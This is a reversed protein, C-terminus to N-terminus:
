RGILSPLGWDVLWDTIATEGIEETEPPLVKESRCVLRFTTGPRKGMKDNEMICVKAVRQQETGLIGVFVSVHLRGMQMIVCLMNMVITAAHKANM